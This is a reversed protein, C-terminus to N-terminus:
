DEKSFYEWTQWVIVTTMLWMCCILFGEFDQM